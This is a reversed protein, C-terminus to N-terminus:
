KYEYYFSWLSKYLYLRGTTQGTLRLNPKNLFVAWTGYLMICLMNFWLMTTYLFQSALDLLYYDMSCLVCCVYCQQTNFSWCFAHCYYIIIMIFLLITTHETFMRGKVNTVRVKTQMPCINMSCVLVM